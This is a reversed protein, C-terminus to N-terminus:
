EAVEARHRAAARRWVPLLRQAVVRDWSTYRAAAEARAAAGMARRRDADSLMTELGMTWADVTSDLHLGTQGDRVQECAAAHRSVLAPLGAAMGEAVVNAFTEIESPHALIDASAYLRAMDDGAVIGPCRARPGLLARIRDRDEGDGAFVFAADRGREALRRGAEALTMVNKGVNVRGVCLVVPTEAAIGYTASLWARDRWAPNFRALELGRPLRAVREAPLVDRARALDQDRPGFVFDCGAQHRRLQALKRREARADVHWRDLLLRALWGRGFMRRVTEATYLRTYGPTDTHVSDVLALGRRHAVRRATRAFAFYADTTHIVDYGPLERALRRHWPALDTHDPVHALFRLRATSFVPRLLRYRVNDAIRREDDAAAAFYVTLDLGETGAAGAAAREWFKVHGGAAPGLFLDVLVAVRLPRLPAFAPGAVVADHERVPPIADDM